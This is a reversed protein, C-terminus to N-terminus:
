PQLSLRESLSPHSDFWGSAKQAVDDPCEEGCHSHYLAHLMEDFASADINAHRMYTRALSDAQAEFERSYGSFVVTKLLSTSQSLAEVDGIMYSLLSFIGDRALQKRNHGLAIHALEHALVGAIGDDSPAIDELEDLLIVPGGPLALANPGMLSSSRFLLPVDSSIGAIDRLAEYRRTLDAKRTDSLQSEALFLTDLQELTADSLQTILTDPLFHALRDAIKPLSWYLAGGFLGLIILSAMILTILPAREARNIRGAWKHTELSKPFDQPAIFLKNGNDLTLIRPARGEPPSLNDVHFSQRAKGIVCSLQKTQPWNADFTITVPVRDTTAKYVMFGNLTIPQHHETM